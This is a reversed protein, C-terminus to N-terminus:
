VEAYWFIPESVTIPSPPSNSANWFGVQFHTSNQFIVQLIRPETSNATLLIKTPTSALGHAIYDNNAVIANGSNETVYGINNAVRTHSGVKYIPDSVSIFQNDIFQNYDSHFGEEIGKNLTDFIVNRVIVHTCSAGSSSDDGLTIGYGSPMDRIVGDSIIVNRIHNGNQAWFAIGKLGATISFTSIELDSINGDFSVIEFGYTDSDVVHFNSFGLREGKTLRISGMKFGDIQFNSFRSQSVGFLYLGYAQGGKSDKQGFLWFNNLFIRNSSQIHIGNYEEGGYGGVNDLIINSGVVIEDNSLLIGENHSDVIYISDLYILASNTIKLGQWGLVLHDLYINLSNNILINYYSSNKSSPYIHLGSIRYHYAVKNVANLEIVNDALSSSVTFIVNDGILQIMKDEGESINNPLLIKSDIIYNGRKIFVTGGTTAINNLATQIVTSANTGGFEIEGTRGNKAYIEDAVGDGNNDVGFVV